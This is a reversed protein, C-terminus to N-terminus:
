DLKWVIWWFNVYDENEFEICVKLNEVTGNVFPKSKWYNTFSFVGKGLFCSFIFFVNTSGSKWEVEWKRLVLGKSDVLFNVNWSVVRKKM